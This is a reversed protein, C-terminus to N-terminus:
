DVTWLLVCGVLTMEIVQREFTVLRDNGGSLVLVCVDWFIARTRSGYKQFRKEVATWRSSAALLALM